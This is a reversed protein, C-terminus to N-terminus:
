IFARVRRFSKEAEYKGEISVTISVYGINQLATENMKDNRHLSFFAKEKERETWNM